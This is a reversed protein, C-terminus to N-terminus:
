DTTSTRTGATSFVKLCGSTTSRAMFPPKVISYLPGSSNRFNMSDSIFTASCTAFSALRCFRYVIKSRIPSSLLPKKKKPRENNTRHSDMRNPRPVGFSGPDPNKEKQTPSTRAARDMTSMILPHLKRSDRFAWERRTIIARM